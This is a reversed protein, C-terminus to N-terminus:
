GGRARGETNPLAPIMHDVRALDILRVVAGFDLRIRADFAIVHPRRPRAREARRKSRPEGEHVYISSQAYPRWRIKASEQARPYSTQSPKDAPSVVPKIALPFRSDIMGTRRESEYYM